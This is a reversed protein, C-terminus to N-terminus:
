VSMFLFSIHYLYLIYIYICCNLLEGQVQEYMNYNCLKISFLISYSSIDSESAQWESRESHRQPIAQPAGPDAHAEQQAQPRGGQAEAFLGSTAGPTKLGAPPRQLSTAGPPRLLRHDRPRDM